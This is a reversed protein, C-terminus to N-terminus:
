KVESNESKTRQILIRLTNAQEQFQSQEMTTTWSNMYSELEYLKSAKNAWYVLEKAISSHDQQKGNQLPSVSYINIVKRPDNSFVIDRLLLFVDDAPHDASRWSSIVNYLEVRVTVNAPDSNYTGYSYSVSSTGGISNTLMVTSAEAPPPMGGECAARVARRSLEKMGWDSGLKAVKLTKLMQQRSLPAVRTELSADRNNKRHPREAVLDLLESLRAEASKTDELIVMREAWERLIGHHWQKDTQRMAAAIARKALKEGVAKQAQQALCERAVLWLAIWRSADKRQTASPRKEDTLEDLPHLEVMNLLENLSNETENSSSKLRVWALAIAISLDDPKENQRNAFQAELNRWISPVSTADNVTVSQVIREANKIWQSDLGPLLDNSLSLDLPMRGSSTQIQEMLQSIAVDQHLNNLLAHANEIGLECRSKPSRTDIRNVTSSSSVSNRPNATNSASAIAIVVPSALLQRYLRLADLPFGLDNMRDALSLACELRIPDYTQPQWQSIQQIAAQKRLWPIARQGQNLQKSVRLYQAVPSNEDFSATFPSPSLAVTRELVELELHKANQIPELATALNWAVTFPMAEIAKKSLLNELTGIAVTPDTRHTRLDLLAPLAQGGLWNPDKAAAERIGDSLEKMENSELVRVASNFLGQQSIGIVRSHLVEDLGFWPSTSSQKPTPILAKQITPRILRSFDLGPISPNPMTNELLLVRFMPQLEFLQEFKQVAIQVLESTAFLRKVLRQQEDPNTINRLNFARL